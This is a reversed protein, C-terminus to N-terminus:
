DLPTFDRVPVRHGQVISKGNRALGPYGRGGAMAIPQERGTDGQGERPKSSLADPWWSLPM